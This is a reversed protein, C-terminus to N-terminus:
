PMNRHLLDAMLRSNFVMVLGFVMKLSYFFLQPLQLTETADVISSVCMILTKIFYPSSDILLLGGIIIIATRLIWISSHNFDLHEEANKSDLNLKALISDTKYLAIFSILGYFAIEGLFPIVSINNQAHSEGFLIITFFSPVLVIIRMLLWLGFIKVVIRWFTKIKM